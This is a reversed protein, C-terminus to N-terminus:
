IHGKHMLQFMSIWLCNTIGYCVIETMATHIYTSRQLGDKLFGVLSSLIAFWCIMFPSDKSTKFIHRSSDTVFLNSALSSWSYPAICSFACHAQVMTCFSSALLDGHAVSYLSWRSHQNSVPACIDWIYDPVASFILARGMLVIKFIQLAASSLIFKGSWQSRQTSPGNGQCRLCSCHVGSSWDSASEKFDATASTRKSRGTVSLCPLYGSVAFSLLSTLM